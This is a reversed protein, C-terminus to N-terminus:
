LLTKPSRDWPELALHRRLYLVTERAVSVIPLSIIAGLVGYIELGVLLAFIVLLPNIRLSHGFIQPAVVHGEFQQLGVFLLAVWLASIPDTFLAVLIPPLAGLVPGIYPVLEMLGLFAGFAVAYTRGDPFIGALGFIYLSVGATTGMIVSFLLQGRVYSTVARQVLTPYDDAPTGNGPPMVRRALDGIRKGYLLMYVSLVFILILNFGTGVVKTLVSGGFSVISGAGKVVKEQLTQLATKGQKIFTVHIGQKNLSKQLDALRKNASSVIHPVNRSFNRVQNSIPNALLVGLGALSLFFALYVALVALGRPVRGRQIFAVAPNLILAILAAIVFLLVVRAAARLLAWGLLLMLPLAVLQIWRPVVVREVEEESPPPQPGEGTLEREEAEPPEAPEQPPAREARRLAARRPEISM